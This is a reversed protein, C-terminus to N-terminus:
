STLFAAFNRSNHLRLLLNGVIPQHAVCTRRKLVETLMHEKCIEVVVDVDETLQVANGSHAVLRVHARGRRIPHGHDVKAHATRVGCQDHIQEARHLGFGAEKQALRPTDRGFRSQAVINQRQRADPALTRRVVIERRLHRCQRGEHQLAGHRGGQAVVVQVVPRTGDVGGVAAHPFM